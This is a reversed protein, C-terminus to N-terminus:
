VELYVLTAWLWIAYGCFSRVYSVHRPTKSQACISCSSVYVRADRGLTPWWYKETKCAITRSIGPHGSLPAMHAWTFLRDRVGTPMYARNEPCQAPAPETRLAQRIDADVDWVM